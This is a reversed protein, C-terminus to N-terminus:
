VSLRPRGGEESAAGPRHSLELFPILASHERVNSLGLSLVIFASMEQDSLYMERVSGAPARDDGPLEKTSILLLEM